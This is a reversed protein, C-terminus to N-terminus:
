LDSHIYNLTGKTRHIAMSFSLRKQKDFVYHEYFELNNTCQGCLLGKKSLITMGRGSMHELRMHWLKTVDDSTPGSDAIAISGTVTSDRLFYLTGFRKEKM